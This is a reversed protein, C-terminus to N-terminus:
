NNNGSKELRNVDNRIIETFVIAGDHNLHDADKWLHYTTFRTDFQMSNFYNLYVLGESEFYDQILRDAQEFNPAPKYQPSTFFMLYVNKAKCISKLHSVYTKLEPNIRDGTFSIKQELRRQYSWNVNISDRDGALVPVYGRDPIGGQDSGIRNKIINMARGNWKYSAFIYKVAEYRSLNNIREKIWLNDTYYQKLHQIDKGLAPIRQLIEEREIHILITDIQLTQNKTLVDVLGTQFVLSMGNHSLNFSNKNLKAPIIHHACRSNGMALFDIDRFEKQLYNVTGGSQGTYTKEFVKNM